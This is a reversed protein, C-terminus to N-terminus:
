ALCGSATSQDVVRCQMVSSGDLLSRCVFRSFSGTAGQPVLHSDYAAGTDALSHQEFVRQFERRFRLSTMLASSASLKSADRRASASALM